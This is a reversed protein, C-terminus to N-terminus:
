EVLNSLVLQAFLRCGFASVAYYPSALEEPRKFEAASAM